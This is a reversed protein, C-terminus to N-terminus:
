GGLEGLGLVVGTADTVSAARIRSVSFCKSPGAWYYRAAINTKRNLSSELLKQNPKGPEKSKEKETKKKIQNGKQTKETKLIAHVNELKLNKLDSCNKLKYM